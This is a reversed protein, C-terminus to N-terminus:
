HYSWEGDCEEVLRKVEIVESAYRGEDFELSFEEDGHVTQVGLLAALLMFAAMDRENEFRLIM